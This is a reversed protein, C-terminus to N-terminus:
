CGDLLIKVPQEDIREKDKNYLVLDFTNHGCVTFHGEKHAEITFRLEQEGYSFIDFGTPESVDFFYEQNMRYIPHLQLYIPNGENNKITVYMTTKERPQLVYDDVRISKIVQSENDYDFEYNLQSSSNSAIVLGIALGIIFSIGLVALFFGRTDDHALNLELKM